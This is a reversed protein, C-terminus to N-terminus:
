ESVAVLYYQTRFFLVGESIAPTAMCIDNMENQALLKFETGAQVVYIDGKEGPCYIKNDGAVVSASFSALKGVKEKYILAGTKANYCTLTGNGRLNYLYDGYILPTQMYAGGRRTSWAIHENSTANKIL